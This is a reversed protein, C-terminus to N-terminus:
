ATLRLAAIKEAIERFASDLSTADSASYARGPTACDILNQTLDTGFAVVWVSINKNRAARCAAQFRSAHRDSLGSSGDNTVRRDWWEIGYPNYSYNIPQLEGDTMFVIHRSISEGNPATQNEAAFIGDPSIFRAGWIMGIDHYTNGSPNFGNSSAMYDSLETRSNFEALKRAEVPCITYGGSKNETSTLEASVWNSSDWYNSGDNRRLYSLSPLMPAWKEADNSPTLDIFLDYATSPVPNWTATAVTEAEEICGNWTHTENEEWWGTPLTVSGTSYVDSIDWNVPKYTWDFSEEREETITINANADYHVEDIVLYCEGTDWDYYSDSNGGYWAYKVVGTYTTTRPNSSSQSALTWSAEDTSVFEDFYRLEDYRDQCPGIDSYNYTYTESGQPEWTLNGSTRNYTRATEEWPGIVLNGERSQYTHSTKMYQTPILKGVNVQQSYPVIGYRVQASDSTSAEVTDYFTLASSRLSEIRTGSASCTSTTGDPCRGMSGTVDFVFMIDTNSINIDASCTVNIDFQEYGFAGMVTTPMNGSATGTVIGDDDSAYQRSLDKLGFTNEPYNHDFFNEGIARHESSFDLDDMARRAALAGADCAAQMRTEAMYYRSADVGGGVMAMLPVLSAASIAITNAANDKALRRIFSLPQGGTTIQDINQGM